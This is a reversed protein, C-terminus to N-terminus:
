PRSPLPFATCGAFAVICNVIFIAIGYGVARFRNEVSGHRWKELLFGLACSLAAAFALTILGRGILHSIQAESPGRSGVTEIQSPTLLIPVSPLLMLLWRAPSIARPQPPQPDPKPM